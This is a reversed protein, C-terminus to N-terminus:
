YDKITNLYGRLAVNLKRDRCTREIIGTLGRVHHWGSGDKDHTKNRSYTLGPVLEEVVDVPANGEGISASSTARHTTERQDGRNM